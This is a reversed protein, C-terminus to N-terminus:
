TMGTIEVTIEKTKAAVEGGDPLSVAPSENPAAAQGASPNAPGATGCSWLLPLLGLLGMIVVRRLM